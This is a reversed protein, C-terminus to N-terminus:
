ALVMVQIDQILHQHGDLLTTDSMEQMGTQTMQNFKQLLQMKSVQKKLFMQDINILYKTDENVVVSFRGMFAEIINTLKSQSIKNSEDYTFKTNKKYIGIDEKFKRFELIFAEGQGGGDRARM